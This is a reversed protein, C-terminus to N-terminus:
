GPERLLGLRGLLAYEADQMAMRDATPPRARRPVSSEARDNRYSDALGQLSPARVAVDILIEIALCIRIIGDTTGRLRLEDETIADTVERLGALLELVTQRGTEGIGDVEPAEAQPDVADARLRGSDFRVHAVEDDVVILASRDGVIDRLRDMSAPEADAVGGVLAEIYAALTWRISAEPSM